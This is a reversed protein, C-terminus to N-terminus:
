LCERCYIGNRSSHEDNRIEAFCDLCNVGEIAKYEKGTNWDKHTFCYFERFDKDLNLFLDKDLFNDVVFHSFPKEKVRNKLDESTYNTLKYNM